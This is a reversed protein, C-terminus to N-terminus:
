AARKKPSLPRTGPTDDPFVTSDNSLRVTGLDLALGVKLLSQLLAHNIPLRREGLSHHLATIALGYEQFIPLAASAIGGTPLGMSERMVRCLALRAVGTRDHNGAFGFLRCVLARYHYQSCGGGLSGALDERFLICAAAGEKELRKILLEAQNTRFLHFSLPLMELVTAEVKASNCCQVCGTPCSLGTIDRYRSVAGDAKCYLELVQKELELLM